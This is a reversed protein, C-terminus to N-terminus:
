RKIVASLHSAFTEFKWLTKSGLWKNEITVSLMIAPTTDLFLRAIGTQRRNGVKARKLGLRNHNILHPETQGFLLLKNYVM